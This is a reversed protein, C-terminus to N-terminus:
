HAVRVPGTAAAPVAAADVIKVDPLRLATLGACDKPASSTAGATAAPKPSQAIAGSSATTAIVVAALARYRMVTGRQIRGDYVLTRGGRCRTERSDIRRACM